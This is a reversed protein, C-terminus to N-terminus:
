PDVIQSVANESIFLRSYNGFCVFAVFISMYFVKLTVMKERVKRM